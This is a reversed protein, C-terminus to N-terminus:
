KSTDVDPEATDVFTQFLAQARLIDHDSLGRLAIVPCTDIELLYDTTTSFLFALKKLNTATPLSVDGEWDKISKMNTGVKRALYSQSWHRLTRMQAIRSGTSM